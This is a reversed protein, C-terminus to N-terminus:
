GLEANARELVTSLVRGATQLDDAPLDGWLRGTIENVAARVRAHLQAGDETATVTQSRESLLGATELEAILAQAEVDAIKLSGAVRRTLEDRAVSGGSVVTLTLTVWQRETVGTGALERDLIANLAKETQGIVQTSFMEVGKLNTPIGLSILYDNSIDVNTL